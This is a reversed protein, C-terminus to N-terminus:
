RIIQLIKEAQDGTLSYCVHVGKRSGTVMNHSRLLALHQSVTAQPLDLKECIEKVHCTGDALENLIRLRTSNGLLKFTKAATEIETM